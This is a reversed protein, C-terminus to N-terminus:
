FTGLLSDFFPRLEPDKFCYQMDLFQGRFEAVREATGASGRLADAFLGAFTEFDNEKMGFRTMESVGMRLGSSATFSEDHPLAQYNCIINNKELDAAARCGRAYGVNVVVQHSETYDVAPDGEVDLGENRLARAFAKANAIIQRQYDNGFAKMELSSMLLGLLTGLHHNSVMGPFARRQIAKWFDYEPTDEEFATAAVGRQPGFFTKHTSGTVIDIGEAFPEQFHPGVLGFVHAMDYMIFPRPESDKIMEKLERVPEPHLVMSKGLIFFEPEVEKLLEATAQLDMKYPNDSCVPFHVVAYKETVPHKAIYDRFAGMPQSSLHGGKGLSNNMALRIRRPERRRDYRNKFDVFASYVTINAMQGSLPRVEANRCGLFDVMERAVRQEVWEIFGTGQYYYVDEEYAALLQKHEAYRGVPDSVQLMRVLPSQTMESPILNICRRQRHEHNDISRKLLLTVEELTGERAPAEGAEGRERTAEPLIPRFHPPAESRGHWRVVAAKMRRGDVEVEVDTGATVHADVYALAIARRGTRETIAATAGHGEFEWYPVTAGSTVTGVVEEGLMVRDGRRVTDGEILALPRVQRPLLNQSHPLGKRLRKVETFQRALTEKGVFDEKRPSFSVGVRALPFGFAPMENGDPDHGFEHGFLPLGAEVRLTDRAGLGVPLVGAPLTAECLKRWVADCSEARVFLEFGLPEGTYGTRSVCVKSGAIVVESLANRVPEPLEGEELLPELIRGSLPGQFAILSLRDTVDTLKVDGFAQACGHLQKWDSEQNMANVVLVYERKGFRYLYADDLIGGREDPILTYQARWPDLAEANNSLVHQLFPLADRGTIKFRGMHSIDFLGGFKRTALHEASIGPKYEVPMEWGASEEMRGGQAHHWANLPTKKLEEAAM